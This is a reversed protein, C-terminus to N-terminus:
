EYDWKLLWPDATRQQFARLKETMRALEEAWAPDNALNTTEDPDNELDFLEFEARHLHDRLTRRGYVFSEGRRLADRWTASEHLDSAFPYPLEHALNWILKRQPEHVVRMPYYMTVEHFTHSAYLTGDDTAPGGLWQAWRSTGHRENPALPGAAAELLTPMLDVHSYPVASVAGAPVVGPWRVILPISLGPEYCNTKAGRFAIGHDSTAIVLTREAQGSAELLEMLRGVGADFRAVAQHYEALEARCAPTDPLFPPVVVEDPTFRIPEIGPYGGPRNGFRDPREPLEDNFGAGRHPDASCWYLFFPREDQSEFLERCADAMAISSRHDAAPLVSDFRFVSEPAVHFKGIRATRYGARGLVVPLSVVSDFAAFHHVSHEHGYHGNAHNHLGSLMVSRSASCSATTAFAADFRTGAAALADLHPTRAIPHGYCGLDKGLDDAVILVINPRRVALPEDPSPRQAALPRRDFGILLCSITLWCSLRRILSRRRCSDTESRM